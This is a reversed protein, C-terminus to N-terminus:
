LTMKPYASSCTPSPRPPEGYAQDVVEDLRVRLEVQVLLELREEQPGLARRETGRRLRDEVLRDDRSMGHIRSLWCESTWSPWPTWALRIRAVIVEFVEASATSMALSLSRVVRSSPAAPSGTGFCSETRM